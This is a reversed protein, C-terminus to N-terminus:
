RNTKYYFTKKKTKELSWKEPTRFICNTIKDRKALDANM